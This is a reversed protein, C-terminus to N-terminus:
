EGRWGGDDGGRPPAQCCRELYLAAAVLIVSAGLILGTSLANSSAVPLNVLGLMYIFWGAALGAFLAGGLSSAKALAAARAVAIPALAKGDDRRGLIRARLNRGTMAEAAALVLLLPAPTWPLRPLEPFTTRIALWGLVACVVAVAVLTRLRTPTM